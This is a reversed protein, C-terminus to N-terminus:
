LLDVVLIPVEIESAIIRGFGLGLVLRAGDERWVGDGQVGVAVGRAEAHALEVLEPGEERAVADDHQAVHERGLLDTGHGVPAGLGV